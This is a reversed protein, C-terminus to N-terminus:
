HNNFLCFVSLCRHNSSFTESSSSDLVGQLLPLLWVAKKVVTEEASTTPLSHNNCTVPVCWHIDFVDDTHAQCIRASSLFPSVPEGQISAHVSCVLGMCYILLCPLNAVGRWVTLRVFWCVMVDKPLPAGPCSSAIFLAQLTQNQQTPWTKFPQVMMVTIM